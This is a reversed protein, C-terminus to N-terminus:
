SLVYLASEFTDKMLFMLEDCFQTHSTVKSHDLIFMEGHAVPHRWGVLERDIRIRHKQFPNIDADMTSFIFKLREFNLNSRPLIVTRDFGSFPSAAVGELANLLELRTRVNDARDRYSDLASSVAGIVLDKPLQDYTFGMAESYDVFTNVCDACYGEWHAYSLLVVCRSTLKQERMCGAHEHLTRLDSLERARWLRDESLRKLFEERM